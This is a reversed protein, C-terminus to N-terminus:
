SHRGLVRTFERRVLRAIAVLLVQFGSVPRPAVSTRASSAQALDGPPPSPQKASSAILEGLNAAFQGILENAMEKVLGSARGYQAVSGTLKLDTDINVRTGTGEPSLAFTVTASATGRGKRDSGKAVVAATRAGADINTLQAEGGFHLQVPGLRVVAEGKYRDAALVEILRAGPLCPAIKAVDVLLAWAQEPSAAVFFSNDFRMPVKRRSQQRRFWSIIRKQARGLISRSFDPSITLPARKCWM